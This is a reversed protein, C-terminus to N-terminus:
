RSPWRALGRFLDVDALRLMSGAALYCAGGAGLGGIM